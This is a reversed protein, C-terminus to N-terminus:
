PVKKQEAASLRAIREEEVKRKAAKKDESAQSVQSLTFISRLRSRFSSSVEEKKEREADEKLEKDVEERAKKLKVKTEPRLSIKSLSDIFPFIASVLDVTDGAHSPSPAKLSLIVHKEREAPLLPGAYPRERPQDTVQIRRTVYLRLSLM